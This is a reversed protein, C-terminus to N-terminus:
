ESLKAICFQLVLQRNRLKARRTETRRIIWLTDDAPEKKYEEREKALKYSLQDADRIVVALMDTLEAIAEAETIETQAM